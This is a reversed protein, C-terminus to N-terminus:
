VGLQMNRFVTRSWALTIALGEQLCTHPRWGLREEARAPDLVSRRQEGPRPAEHVRTPPVGAVTQVQRALELITTERGTGLNLVGVPRNALLLPVLDALDGVFVFDRTQEGTGFIRLPEGRLAAECFCPVVAAEGGQRQRPGYVNSFRLSCTDLGYQHRYAGLYADVALKAAGYPNLPQQPYDEGQPGETAEGYIAGGSSAFALYARNARALEMVRLSALVNLEADLLPDAISRGVSVQAAFHFVAEPDFSHYLATLRGTERLDLMELRAEPPLNGTSGTSLDDVVLAEHGLLVLRDVFHSGIFGAGGTVLVRM